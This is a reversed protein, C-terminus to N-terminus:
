EVTIETIKPVLITLETFDDGEVRRSKIEIGSNKITDIARNIASYFSSVSKYTRKDQKQAAIDQSLHGEILEESASVNLHENVIRSLLKARLNTDLVRLLARAHRETLNNKLIIERESASYRLLRLKNAIFSQSNSLKTAIQEQTLGYTDILAEIAEAQEFINLDERILNEIISIEASKEENIAIIICPVHSIGLEKAARLRREGAVLEYSEGLKRVTLPQIIGYQNISDALRLISEENFVKRPQNPNPAIKTIEIQQVEQNEVVKQQNSMRKEEVKKNKGFYTFKVNGM